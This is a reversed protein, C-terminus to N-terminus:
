LGRRGRRRGDGFGCLLLLLLAVIMLLITTM